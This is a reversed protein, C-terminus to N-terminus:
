VLKPTEQLSSILTALMGRSAAPLIRRRLTFVELTADLGREVFPVTLVPHKSLSASVTHRLLVTIGDGEAVYRRLLELSNTEFAPRVALGSAACAEDFIRRAPNDIPSLAMPWHVVEPISVSTRGALPHGPAMVALLRERSRFKVDFDPGLAPRFGIGIDAEGARVSAVVQDTAAVSIRFTIAPYRATFTKLTRPLVSPVMAEITSLEVQGRELKHIQEIDASLRQLDAAASRGFTLLLEGEPTLMMGHHGREFLVSGIERELAQLQRSVASQAVNLESCASRISGHRAVALFYRLSTKLM